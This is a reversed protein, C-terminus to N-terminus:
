ALGFYGLLNKVVFMSDVYELHFEAFIAGAFGALLWLVLRPYWYDYHGVFIWAVNSWFAHVYSVDRRQFTTLIGGSGGSNIRILYGLAVACVCSYGVIRRGTGVIKAALLNSGGGLLVVLILLAFLYDATENGTPRVLWSAIKLKPVMRDIEVLAPYVFANQYILDRILSSSAFLSTWLDRSVKLLLFNYGTTGFILYTLPPFRPCCHNWVVSGVLMFCLFRHVVFVRDIALAAGFDAITTLLDSAAFGHDWLNSFYHKVPPYEWLFFPKRHCMSDAIRGCFPGINADYFPCIMDSRFLFFSLGVGEIGEELSFLGYNTISPSGIWEMHKWWVVFSPSFELDWTDIFQSIIPPLIRNGPNTVFLILSPILIWAVRNWEVFKWLPTRYSRHTAMLPDGDRSLVGGEYVHARGSRTNTM